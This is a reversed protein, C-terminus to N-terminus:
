FFIEDRPISKQIYFLRLTNLLLNAVTLPGIGGPVPTIYSAVNKVSEFDVDGVLRGEVRNIGVDVVFAGKKVWEKKVLCPVGVAAILIDASKCEKIINITKSHAVTVTCNERILLSAMPRGVIISRGIVVAKKGSLSGLIKKLLYLIGQPTCPSIDGRWHNIMGTNVIGFGDVDKSPKIHNFVINEDLKRGLPLQVLIGTIHGDDNLDNILNRLSFNSIQPPNEILMTDIGVLKATKIKAEVYIKSAKSDGILITAIKPTTKLVDYKQQVKHKILNLIEEAVSKGNIVITM